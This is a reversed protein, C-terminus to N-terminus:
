NSGKVFRESFYDFKLALDNKKTIYNIYYNKEELVDKNIKKGNMVDGNSVYVNGDYWSYDSFFVIGEYKNNLADEGIYNNVNYNINFLNLITPLVNLQSTVKNINTKKTDSSWIFFPTKNILNNSTDKYKDLISKDELTYLYHDAFGVIVTNELLGKEELNQILLGVFYDTEQVQRKVCDEESMEKVPLELMMAKEEETLNPNKEIELMIEAKAEEIDLDNLMKCVGKTNNFPMHTSYTIIYNVFKKDVPFMLKNFTENLVLERDLQYRMDSYSDLDVLGYYNDYGWNIYNLKRSYYEGSNMHFANVTYGEDKFINAMSYRFDNRNFTYANKNYSLPTIFGTNVAFESNFTSGGGNYYSYHNKFNISNNMLKYINPTDKENIVWNDIGELQLLILNKGTYKGTYKNKVADKDEFATNLFNVDEEEIEEDTKLFTVYFNRVSYEMLGSIRMSKNADNFSNYINRPNKWSSWTLETNAKGLTLPTLLHMVLFVIFISTFLNFNNERERPINKFGIVILAIVIICAVYVFINCNVIADILYPTGESASELLNFDFFNKTMSYYVNNVVFMIFVVIASLLYIIRNIVKKFSLSSGILLVIWGLSFLITAYIYYHNFVIDLGFLYTFIEMVVFPLSMLIIHKYKNFFKSVKKYAKSKKIKKFFEM